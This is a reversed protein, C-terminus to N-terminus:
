IARQNALGLQLCAVGSFHRNSHNLLFLFHTHVGVHTLLDYEYETWLEGDVFVIPLEDLGVGWINVDSFALSSAGPFGDHAIASTFAEQFVGQNLYFTSHPENHSVSDAQFTALLYDGNEYTDPHHFSLTLANIL